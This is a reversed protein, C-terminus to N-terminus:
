VTGDTMRVVTHDYGCSVTSATKGSSMIMPVLTSRYTTTGDGLQGYSNYGCGYVTGDTMRVVTHNGGCSVTSATKGSPMIMQVFLSSNTTTNIGLQGYGNYGCSYVKGGIVICTHNGYDLLYKYAEISKTFYINEINTAINEMEWNGGYVINGTKDNSAGVVVSTNRKIKGYYEVWMPDELSNCALYHINEVKFEKIVNIIFSTNADTFFSEGELFRSQTYAFVSINKISTFQTRLTNLVETKSTNRGYVIPVTVSNVSKVIEEYDVVSSDIFVVNTNPM